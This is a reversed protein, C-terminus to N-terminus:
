KSPDTLSNAEGYVMKFCEGLVNTITLESIKDQCPYENLWEILEKLKTDSPSSMQRARIHAARKAKIIPADIQINSIMPYLDEAEKEYDIATINSPTQKPMILEFDKGCEECPVQEDDRMLYGADLCFICKPQRM